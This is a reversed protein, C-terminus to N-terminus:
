LFLCLNGLILSTSLARSDWCRWKGSSMLYIMLYIVTTVAQFQCSSLNLLVIWIKHVSRQFHLWSRKGQTLLLSDCFFPLSPVTLGPSSCLLPWVFYIGKGFAHDLEQLLVSSLCCCGPTGRCKLFVPANKRLLVNPLLIQWLAKVLM